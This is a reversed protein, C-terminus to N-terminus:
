RHNLILKRLSGRQMYEGLHQYRVRYLSKYCVSETQTPSHDRPVAHLSHIIKAFTTLDVTEEREFERMLREAERWMLEKEKSGFVDRINALKSISTSPSLTAAKECLVRCYEPLAINPNLEGLLAKCFFVCNRNIVNYDPGVWEMRLKHLIRIIDDARMKTEGLEVQERFPGLRCKMPEVAFVGSGSECYGYSWEIGAVEVGVHYIGGLSLFSNLFANTSTGGLDYVSVLVKM